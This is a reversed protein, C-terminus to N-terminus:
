GINNNRRRSLGMGLLGLGLLALVSPEPIRQVDANTNTRISLQYLDTNNLLPTAGTFTGGGSQTLQIDIPLPANLSITHIQNGIIDPSYTWIVTNTSLDTLTYEQAYSATAFGPFAESSSVYAQLYVNYDASFTLGLTHTLQFIFSSQLNNTSTSHSLANQNTLGAYAADGINAGTPLGLGAIPAGAEMQDAASYNGLVPTAMHTFSNDPGYAGSWAACGSGVCVAPLDVPTASSSSNYGPTGPLTGAYGGTSTYTLFSFDTAANIITSTATDSITFNSLTATATAMVSAQAAGPLALGFVGLCALAVATKKSQLHQKVLKM